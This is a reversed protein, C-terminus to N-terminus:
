LEEGSEEYGSVSGVANDNTIALVEVEPTSYKLKLAEM